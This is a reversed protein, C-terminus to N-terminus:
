AAKLRDEITDAFILPNKRNGRKSTRQLTAPKVQLIQREFGQWGCDAGEDIGKIM